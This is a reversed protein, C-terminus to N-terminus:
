HKALFSCADKLCLNLSVGLPGFPGKPGAAGFAGDAGGRAFSQRTRLWGRFGLTRGPMSVPAIRLRVGGGRLVRKFTFLSFSFGEISFIWAKFSFIAVYRTLSVIFYFHVNDM